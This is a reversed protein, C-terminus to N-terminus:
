YFDFNYYYVSFLPMKYAIPLVGNISICDNDLAVPQLIKAFHSCNFGPPLTLSLAASQIISSASFFPIRYGPLVIQSAVPPFV